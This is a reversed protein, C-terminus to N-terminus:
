ALWTSSNPAPGSTSARGKIRGFEREVLDRCLVLFLIGAERVFLAIIYGYFAIVVPLVIGTAAHVLILLTLVVRINTQHLLHDEVIATWSTVQGSRESADSPRDGPPPSDTTAAIARRLAPMVNRGLVAYLVALVVPISSGIRAQLYLSVALPFATMMCYASWDELFMGRLSRRDLLRALEGDVSDLVAYLHVLVVGVVVQATTDGIGILACGGIGVFFNIFSVVNPSVGWPALATTIWISVNRTFVTDYINSTRRQAIRRVDRVTYSRRITM